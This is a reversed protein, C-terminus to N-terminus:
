IRKDIGLEKYLQNAQNVTPDSSRTHPVNKSGSTTDVNDHAGNLPLARKKNNVKRLANLIKKPDVKLGIVIPLKGEANGPETGPLYEISDEIIPMAELAFDEDFQGSTSVLEPFEEMLSAITDYAQVSENMIRQSIEAESRALNAQRNMEANRQEARADYGDKWRRWALEAQEDTLEKIEGTKNDRVLKFDEMKYEPDAEAIKAQAQAQSNKQLQENLRQIEADREKLESTLKQFRQEVAPNSKGPRKGEEEAESGQQGDGEGSGEHGAGAEDEGAKSTKSNNRSEAESVGEADEDGTKSVKGDASGDKGAQSGNKSGESDSANGDGGDSGSASSTKSKDEGDNKAQGRGASSSANDEKSDKKNGGADAKPRGKSKGTPAAAKIGLEDYMKQVDSASPEAAAGETSVASQQASQNGDQAGEIPKDDENM